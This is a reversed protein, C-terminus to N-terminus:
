EHNSAKKRMRGATWTHLSVVISRAADIGQAQYIEYLYVEFSTGNWAPEELVEKSYAALNVNSSMVPFMTTNAVCLERGFLAIIADGVWAKQKTTLGRV